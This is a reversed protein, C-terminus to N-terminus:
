RRDFQVIVPSAGAVTSYLTSCNDALDGEKVCATLDLTVLDPLLLLVEELLKM